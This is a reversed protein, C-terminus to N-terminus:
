KGRRLKKQLDEPKVRGESAAEEIERFVAVWAPTREMLKKVASLTRRHDLDELELIRWAWSRPSKGSTPPGQIGAGRRSIAFSPRRCAPKAASNM